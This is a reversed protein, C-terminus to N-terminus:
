EGGNIFTVKPLEVKTKTILKNMNWEEDKSNYDRCGYCALCMQYNICAIKSGRVLSHQKINM